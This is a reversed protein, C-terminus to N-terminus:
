RRELTLCAVTSQSAGRGSRQGSAQLWRRASARSGLHKGAFLTTQPALAGGSHGSVRTRRDCLCIPPAVFCMKSKKRLRSARM